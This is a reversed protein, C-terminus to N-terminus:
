QGGAQRQGADSSFLAVRKVTHVQLGQHVGDYAHAILHDQV